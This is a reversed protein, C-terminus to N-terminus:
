IANHTAKVANGLIQGNKNKLWVKKEEGSSGASTPLTSFHKPAVTGPPRFASNPDDAMNGTKLKHHFAALINEENALCKARQPIEKKLELEVNLCKM